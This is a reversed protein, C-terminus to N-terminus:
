SKSLSVLVTLPVLQGGGGEDMWWFSYSFFHLLLVTTVLGCSLSVIMGSVTRNRSGHWQPRDAQSRKIPWHARSRGTVRPPPRPSLARAAKSVKVSGAGTFSFPLSPTSTCLRACYRWRTRTATCLSPRRTRVTQLFCSHFFWVEFAQQSVTWISLFCCCSCLGTFDIIM